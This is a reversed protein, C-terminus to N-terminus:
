VGGNVRAPNIIKPMISFFKAGDGPHCMARYHKFFIATGAHGMESAVLAADHTEDYAYTAFSHRMCDPPWAIGAAKVIRAIARFRNRDNFPAIPSRPPYADLWARLNPRIRVTRASAAKTVAGDLMVFMFSIKEPLLRALEGPRIGAFLGLAFYPIFHPASKEAERLLAEAAAPTLVGKPPEVTRAKEIQDTVVSRTLGKAKCWGFFASLNRLV